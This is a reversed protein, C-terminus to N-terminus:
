EIAGANPPVSEADGPPIRAFAHLRFKAEATLSLVDTWRPFMSSVGARRLIGAAVIASVMFDVSTAVAAGFIGFPKILVALLVVGVVTGVAQALSGMGPRGIAALVGDMPVLAGIAVTAVLLAVSPAVAGRFAPGYVLPIAFPIIIVLPAVAIATVLLSLRIYRAATLSRDKEAAALVEGYARSAISSPLLLPLGSVTVAISYIGLERAGLVPGIIAQDLGASASIAVLGVISRGGYSLLPLLRAPRSPRTSFRLSTYVFATISGALTAAVVSGVSLLGFVWLIVVLFAPVGVAFLRTRALVGLLGRARLMGEVSLQILAIPVFGVSIIIAAKGASSFSRVPGLVLLVGVALSPVLLATALRLIAGLLAGAQERGEGLFFACANPVGLCLVLAALTSYVAAAAVEGRGGPGLSRALIPGTVMGAAVTLYGSTALGAVTGRGRSKAARRAGPRNM